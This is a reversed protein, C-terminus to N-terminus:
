HIIEFVTGLDHAGGFATTGYLNGDADFILSAAPSAGNGLKSSSFTYLLTENWVGGAAPTLKFVTGGRIGGGGITTGYLNGTADFILGASPLYGDTSGAEFNHLISETWGGGAQPTLEFVTGCGGRGTTTPCSSTSTFAGGFFTTGYLNGDADLILGAYPHAGDTSTNDFDHLITETWDGDGRPSLEFVTGSGYAGGDYTTGYLNGSADFILGARPLWGDEGSGFDHLIKETWDGSATRTLEFVTGGNDFATGNAGGGSTTGYLNGAADFILSSDPGFGDEGSGFNHLTKETWGGSATHTLKFVTGGTDAGGDSTTGYLNGAADFILSSDPQAGDEGSGFDRLTKETWHGCMKTLEFVAGGGGGPTTGGDTTTGYLNGSADFILSGSPGFPGKFSNTYNFSYLVKETETQAATSTATMLITVACIALLAAFEISFKKGPM